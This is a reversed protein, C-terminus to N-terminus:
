IREDEDVAHEIQELTVDLRRDDVMTQLAEDITSAAVWRAVAVRDSADEYLTWRVAVPPPSSFPADAPLPAGWGHLTIEAKWGHPCLEGMVALASWQDRVQAPRHKRRLQWVTIAGGIAGFAAILLIVVLGHPEPPPHAPACDGCAMMVAHHIASV